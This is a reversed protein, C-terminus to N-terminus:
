LPCPVPSLPQRRVAAEAASAFLQLQTWPDDGTYGLAQELPAPGGNRHITLMLNATAGVTTEYNAGYISQAQRRLDCLQIAIDLGAAPGRGQPRPETTPATM